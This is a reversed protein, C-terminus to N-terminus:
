GHDRVAEQHVAERKDRDVGEERVRCHERRGRGSHRHAYQADHLLQAPCLAPLLFADLRERDFPHRKHLGHRRRPDDGHHDAVVHEEGHFRVDRRDGRGAGHGGRREAARPPVRVHVIDGMHLDIHRAPDRELCRGEDRLIDGQHYDDARPLGEDVQGLPHHAGVSRTEACEIPRVPRVDALLPARVDGLGDHGGALLRVRVLCGQFM